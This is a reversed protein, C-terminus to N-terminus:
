GNQPEPQDKIDENLRLSAPLNLRAFGLWLRFSGSVLDRGPLRMLAAMSNTSDAASRSHGKMCRSRMPADAVPVRHAEMPSFREAAATLSGAIIFHLEDADHASFSGLRHYKPHLSSVDACCLQSFSPDLFARPSLENM